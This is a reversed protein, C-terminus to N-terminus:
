INKNKNKTTISATTTPTTTTSRYHHKTRRDEVTATEQKNEEPEIDTTEEYFVKKYKKPRYDNKVNTICHKLQKNEETVQRYSNNAANLVNKIDHLQKDKESIIIKFNEIDKEIEEPMLGIQEDKIPQASKTPRLKRNM